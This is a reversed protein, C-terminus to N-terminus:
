PTVSPLQELWHSVAGPPLEVGTQLTHKTPLWAVVEEHSGFVGFQFNAPAFVRMGVVASRMASAWFGTGRVVIAVCALDSAREKMSQMFVHRADADPLPLRNHIVHVFSQRLGRVEPRDMLQVVTEAAARTAQGTWAVFAVNRYGRVTVVGPHEALPVDPPYLSPHSLLAM